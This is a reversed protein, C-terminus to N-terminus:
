GVWEGRGMETQGSGPQGAVLGKHVDEVLHVVVGPLPLQDGLVHHHADANVECLVQLLELLLALRHAPRALTEQLCSNTQKTSLTDSVRPSPISGVTFNDLRHPRVIAQPM